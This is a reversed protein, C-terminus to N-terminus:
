FPRSLNLNILFGNMGCLSAPSHPIKNPFPNSDRL